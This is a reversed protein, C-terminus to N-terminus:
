TGPLGPVDQWWRASRRRLRDWAERKLLLVFGMALLGTGVLGLILWYPLTEGRDVSLWRVAVGSLALIGAVM